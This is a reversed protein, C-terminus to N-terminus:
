AGRSHTRSSIRIFSSRGRTSFLPAEAEAVDRDVAITCINAFATCHACLRCRAPDGQRWYRTIVTVTAPGAQM